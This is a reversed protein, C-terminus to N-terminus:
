QDERLWARWVKEAGDWGWGVKRIKGARLFWMRTVRGWYVLINRIQAIACARKEAELAKARKDM